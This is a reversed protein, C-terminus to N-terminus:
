LAPRRWYADRVVPAPVAYIRPYLFEYTHRAEEYFRFGASTLFFFKGPTPMPSEAPLSSYRILPMGHHRRGMLALWLDPEQQESVGTVEPRESTALRAMVVTFSKWQRSTLGDCLYKSIHAAARYPAQSLQRELRTMRRLARDLASSMDSSEPYRLELRLQDRQRLRRQQRVLQHDVMRAVQSKPQRLLASLRALDPDDQQVEPVKKEGCHRDILAAMVQAVEFQRRIACPHHDLARQVTALRAELVISLRTTIGTRGRAPLMAESEIRRYTSLGISARSATEALTLGRRRRLTTITVAPAPLRRQRYPPMDDGILAKFDAESIGLRERVEVLGQEADAEPRPTLQTVSTLELAEALELARPAEPVHKGSEYALIMAKSTGVRVGLQAASIGLSRRHARLAEGDFAGTGRALAWM